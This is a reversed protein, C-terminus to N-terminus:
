ECTLVAAAWLEWREEVGVSLSTVEYNSKKPSQYQHISMTISSPANHDCHTVTIGTPTQRHNIITIM